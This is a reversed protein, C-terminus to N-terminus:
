LNELVDAISPQHGGARRKGPPQTGHSDGDRAQPSPLLSYENAGTPHELPRLEFLQGNATMGSTPLTALFVDSLGSFLEAQGGEWVDRTPNWSAIPQPM